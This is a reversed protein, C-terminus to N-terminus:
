RPGPSAADITAFFHEFYRDKDVTVAVQHPAGAPGPRWITAGARDPDDLEVEVVGEQYGCLSPEFITAAALPDHFTIEPAGDDFWVEAFELVPELLPARFRSRVEDAALTTQLTVDLGISRHSPPRARYVLATAHPDLLANWEAVAADEGPLFRGCMLVLSKLLSPIEPDVAFLLAINTLPGIALLTVEGPNARITQRLLEVAAGQEFDTEHEWRDLVGAQRADVQRQPVLLPSEAGPRIPVDTGAVRCLASALRARELPKGSVTTIGLLDCDPHALLYALCVADDIDSGIDTDLLVKM